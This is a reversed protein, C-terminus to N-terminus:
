IWNAAIVANLSVSYGEPMNTQGAPPLTACAALALEAQSFYNTFTKM